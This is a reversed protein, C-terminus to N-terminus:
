EVLIKDNQTGFENPIKELAKPDNHWHGDVIFKYAYVGPELKISTKWEGSNSRKLPSSGIDWNNFDGVLFVNNAEPASYAFTTFKSESVKNKELNKIGKDQDAITAFINEQKKNVVTTDIPKKNIKKRAKSKNPMKNEKKNIGKKSSYLTNTSKKPRLKKSNINNTNTSKNVEKRRNSTKANIKNQKSIKGDESANPYHIKFNLESKQNSNNQINKELHDVPKIIQKKSINFECNLDKAKIDEEKFDKKRNFVKLINNVCAKLQKIM